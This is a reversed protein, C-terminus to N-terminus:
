KAENERREHGHIALHLNGIIKLKDAMDAATYEKIAKVILIAFEKNSDCFGCENCEICIRAMFAEKGLNGIKKNQNESIIFCTMAGTGAQQLMEIIMKLEEQM